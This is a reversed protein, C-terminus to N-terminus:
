KKPKGFLNKLKDEAEKKAKQEAEKKLREMEAKAKDEAEKKLREAEAKAKDEAEQKLREAEAKAKDELEQKKADFTEKIQTKVDTAIGAAADKLGTEVKPNTVTGTMKVNVNVEKGMSLNTGAAQNAKALLGTVVGTTQSGMMSVPIIMAINYDITQDFGNSGHVKSKIGALVVDYPAVHVRGNEFRFSLNLDSVTLKKFQDMKLAEAVKVLPEFNDITLGATTLKGGGQLTSYVPEMKEDFNGKIIFETSYRGNCKEAIPALKKVAVFKDFTKRIDLGTIDLDLYFYPNRIDKTEYLGDITIKGELLGFNFGNIGLTRDRIALNGKPNELVLDEYSVKGASATILFDINEPVEFVTAPESSEPASTGDSMWENLDIINSKIDLTGKLLENEKFLYSLLNDLWGTAKIDTNGSQMEFKNLTVNKPNFILECVPISIGKSVAPGSYNFATLTFSGMADFDEYRKQDISSMRGKASLNADMTGSLKTGQELPVLGAIQALDLRGKVHFDIDADSVPTKVILRADFPEKGLEVHLNSLNIVTHDPVGDPNAVQLDINVNNLNSPLDPYTFSGNNVKLTIGFGPMTTESYIGKLHGNFSMSGSSKVNEFGERYIGPVMSIFNRFENQRAEFTLNLEIPDNPMAVYGDFGLSLENLLLENKRFTYKSNKMDMELDATLNAKAKHIYSIGEYTLDFQAIKTTTSFTFLDQTFDGSGKHSFNTLLTSFDLSKDDYFLVGDEIEYKKLSITFQSGSDAAAPQLTDEKAIDWNAKGDRNVLLNIRPRILTFSRIEIQDGSIVSMLNISIDTKSIGALTDGEFESRGVVSLDDLSITLNPFNRFFTLGFNKFDVTANINNNIETKVKALIKDKFLFPTAFLAAILLVFVLLIIKITKKMTIRNKACPEHIM